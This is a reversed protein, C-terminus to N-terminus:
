HCWKAKISFRKLQQLSFTSRETTGTAKNSAQKVHSIDDRSLDSSDSPPALLGETPSDELFPDTPFNSWNLYDLIPGFHLASYLACVFM